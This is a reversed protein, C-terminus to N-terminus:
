SAHATILVREDITTSSPFMRLVEYNTSNMGLDTAAAIQRRALESEEQTDELGNGDWLTIVLVQHRVSDHELCVLGRFDPNRAFREGVRDLAEALGALAGGDVHFTLVRARTV